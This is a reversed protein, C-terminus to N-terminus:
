NVKKMKLRKWLVSWRVQEDTSADDFYKSFIIRSVAYELRARDMNTLSIRM